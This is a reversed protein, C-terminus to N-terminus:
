SFIKTGILRLLVTIVPSLLECSEREDYLEESSNDDMRSQQLYFGIIYMKFNAKKNVIRCM